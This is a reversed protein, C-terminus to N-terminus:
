NCTSQTTAEGKALWGVRSLHTKEGDLGMSNDVDIIDHVTARSSTGSVTVSALLLPDVKEITDSCLSSPPTEACSENGDTIWGRMPTSGKLSISSIASKVTELGSLKAAEDVFKYEQKPCTDAEMGPCHRSADSARNVNRPKTAVEDDPKSRKFRKTLKLCHVGRLHFRLEQM